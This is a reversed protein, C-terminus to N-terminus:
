SGCQMRSLMAQFDVSITKEESDVRSSPVLMRLEIEDEIVLIDSDDHTAPTHDTEENEVHTLRIVDERDESIQCSTDEDDVTISEQDQAQPEALFEHTGSAESQDDSLPATENFLAATEDFTSINVIEQHLM